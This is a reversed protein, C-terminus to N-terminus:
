LATFARDFAPLLFDRLIPFASQHTDWTEDNGLNVQVLRVGAGVLRRALLLSWGFVNRGYRDLVEPEANVVDFVKQMSSDALMSIARQRFRDFPEVEAVRELRRQQSEIE